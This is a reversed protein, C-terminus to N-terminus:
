KAALVSLDPVKTGRSFDESQCYAAVQNTNPVCIWLSVSRRPSEGKLIGIMEVVNDLYEREERPRDTVM